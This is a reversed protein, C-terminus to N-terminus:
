APSSDRRVPGGARRVAEHAHRDVGHRAACGLRAAVDRADELSTESTFRSPLMVCRVNEPGLADCAIAAVLASDVGGSLGLVAKHFGAKRMYDGLSLVMTAITPKGRTPCAPRTERFQRGARAGNEFEVFFLGPEFAPM